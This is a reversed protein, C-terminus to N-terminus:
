GHADGVCAWHPCRVNSATTTLSQENHLEAVDFSAPAPIHMQALLNKAIGYRPQEHDGRQLSSLIWAWMASSTLEKPARSFLKDM